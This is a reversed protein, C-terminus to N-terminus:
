TGMTEEHRHKMEVGKRSGEWSTGGKFLTPVKWKPM